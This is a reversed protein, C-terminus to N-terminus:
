DAGGGCEWAAHAVRQGGPEGALSGASALSAVLVGVLLVGVLLLVLLRGGAAFILTMAIASRSMIPSCNKSSRRRM